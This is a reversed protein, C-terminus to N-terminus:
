VAGDMPPLIAGEPEPTYDFPTVFAALSIGMARSLAILTRLSPESQDHELAHIYGKSLGSRRALEVATLGCGARTTRLHHGFQPTM